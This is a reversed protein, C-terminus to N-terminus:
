KFPDFGEEEKQRARLYATDIAMATDPITGRLGDATEWDSLQAFERLDEPTVRGLFDVVLYKGLEVEPGWDDVDRQYGEYATLHEERITVRTGDVTVASKDSCTKAVETAKLLFSLAPLPPLHIAM